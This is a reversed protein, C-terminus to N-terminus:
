STRYCTDEGSCWRENYRPRDGEREEKERERGREGERGGTERERESTGAGSMRNLYIYM